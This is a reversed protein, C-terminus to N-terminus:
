QTKLLDRLWSVKKFFAEECRLNWESVVFMRSLLFAFNTKVAQQFGSIEYAKKGM